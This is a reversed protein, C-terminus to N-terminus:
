VLELRQVSLRKFILHEIYRYEDTTLVDQRQVVFLDCLTHALTHAEDFSMCHDNNTLAIVVAECLRKQIDSM